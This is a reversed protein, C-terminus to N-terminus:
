SSIIQSFGTIDCFSVEKRRQIKTRPILHGKNETHKDSAFDMFALLCYQVQGNTARNFVNAVQKMQHTISFPLYQVFCLIHYKRVM